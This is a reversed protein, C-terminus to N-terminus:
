SHAPLVCVWRILTQREIDRPASGRTRSLAPNITNDDADCLSAKEVQVAAQADLLVDCRDAVRFGRSMQRKNKMWRQRGWKWEREGAWVTQGGAALGRGWGKKTSVQM